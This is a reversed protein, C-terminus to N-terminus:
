RLIPQMSKKIGDKILKELLEDPLDEAGAFKAFYQLNKLKEFIIKEMSGRHLYLNMIM